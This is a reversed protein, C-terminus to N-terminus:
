WTWEKDDFANPVAQWGRWEDVDDGHEALVKKIQEEWGARPDRKRTPSRLVVEDGRVTLEVRGDRLGAQEIVAKPLRVGRSNGIKVLRTTM